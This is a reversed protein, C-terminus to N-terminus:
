IMEIYKLLQAMSLSNDEVEHQLNSCTATIISLPTNLEHAVSATLVGIGAMRQIRTLAENIRNSEPHNNARVVTNEVAQEPTKVATDVKIDVM